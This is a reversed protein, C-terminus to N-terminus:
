CGTDLLGGCGIIEDTHGTAFYGIWPKIFCVRQYFGPYVNLIEICEPNSRFRSNLAEDVEIPILKM